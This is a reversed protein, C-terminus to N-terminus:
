PEHDLEELPDELLEDEEPVELLLLEEPPLEELLLEDPLALLELEDLPPVEPPPVTVPSVLAGFLEVKTTPVGTVSVKVKLPLVAVATLRAITSSFPLLM